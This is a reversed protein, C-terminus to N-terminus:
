GAAKKAAALLEDFLGRQEAYKTLDKPPNSHAELLVWGSYDISVLLKFLDAYPYGKGDLERVHCTQGFRDCVLKFNAELGPPKLDTENCNWCVTVAPHKAIEMIAKITSLESCQGHVELRVQQGFGEAYEGLENLSAGIQEITKERPVGDHFRDPKVKVGSGGVDHSLRIFEKAKEIAKKLVAPDPKDFREDSGIGVLIVGSDAFKQRVEERQATTLTPEVGHKHTTRLEVGTYKLAACNALLADLDWDRGWQYTVMGFAINEGKQQSRPAPAAVALRTSLSVALGASIGTSLLARRSFTTM